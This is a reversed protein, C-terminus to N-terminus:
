VTEQEERRPAGQSQRYMFDDVGRLTLQTSLLKLQPHADEHFSLEIERSKRYNSLESVSARAENSLMVGKKRRLIDCVTGANSWVAVRSTSPLGVLSDRIAQLNAAIPDFGSGHREKWVIRRGTVNLITTFNDEGTGITFVYSHLNNYMDTWEGREAAYQAAYRLLLGDRLSSGYKLDMGRAQAEREVASRVSAFESNNATKLIFRLSRGPATRSIAEVANVLVHGVEEGGKRVTYRDFTIYEGSRLAVAGRQLGSGAPYHLFVTANYPRRRGNDLVHRTM